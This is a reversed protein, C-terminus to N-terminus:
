KQRRNTQIKKQKLIPCWGVAVSIAVATEETHIDTAIAVQIVFLFIREVFVMIVIIQKTRMLKAFTKLAEAPIVFSLSIIIFLEAIYIAALSYGNKFSSAFLFNNQLAFTLYPVTFFINHSLILLLYSICFFFSM